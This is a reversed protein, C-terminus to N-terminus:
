NNGPVEKRTLAFYTEKIFLVFEKYGIIYMDLFNFKYYKNLPIYAIIIAALLPFINTIVIAYVSKFFSIGVFDAILNVALMILIKYFNIKPKQIVDLTLAFFRDAPFLVAISIFIRFLNPAESGIYKDGGILMILPNAFIIALVAIIFLAVSLMGVLKKMVYMMEDKQGSNYYGALSPMGSSAFSLMPIEVIPMWRSALNYIAIAPAGLYFNIFFTDTVRFLNTSISTGMSYKGFHFIATITKKTAYKVSSIKTWGLMMIIFSAIFNTAGFAILMTILTAKKLYVLLLIAGMFLLQNILRLWFLRDFRKDGQVVLNAMFTPLTSIAMVSFYKLYLATGDNSIHIAVFFTFINLIILLISILLALAWASGAVENEREPGSGSYFTIFANTLFGAKLTDVLNYLVIFFFYVGIDYVSLARFLIATTLMGFVAMVGNGM